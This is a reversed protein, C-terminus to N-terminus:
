FLESRFYFAHSYYCFKDTIFIHRNEYVEVYIVYVEVKQETGEQARPRNRLSKGIDDTEQANSQLHEIEICYICNLLAKYLCKVYNTSFVISMESGERGM